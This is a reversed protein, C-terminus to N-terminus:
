EAMGSLNNIIAFFRAAGVGIQTLLNLDVSFFGYIRLQLGEQARMTILRVSHRFYRTKDVWECTYAAVATLEAWETLDNAYVCYITPQIMAIVTHVACKNVGAYNQQMLEEQLNIICICINVSTVLMLVLLIPSFIRQFKDSLLLLHTHRKGMTNLQQVPTYQNSEGTGLAILDDHLIQYQSSLHTALQLFIMDAGIWSASVNVFVLAELTIWIIYKVFTDIQVPYIAQFVTQSMDYTENKRSIVHTLLLLYPRISYTIALLIILTAYVQTFFRARKVKKVIVDPINLALQKQWLNRLEAIVELLDNRSHYVFFGQAMVIVGSLVATTVELAYYVDTKWFSLVSRFECFNAFFTPLLWFVYYLAKMDWIKRKSKSFITDVTFVGLTRLTVRCVNFLKAFDIPSDTEAADVSDDSKVFM